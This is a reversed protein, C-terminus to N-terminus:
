TGKPPKVWLGLSSEPPMFVTPHAEITVAETYLTGM